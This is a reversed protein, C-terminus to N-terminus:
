GAAPGALLQERPDLLPLLRWEVAEYRIQLKWELSPEADRPHRTALDGVLRVSRTVPALICM